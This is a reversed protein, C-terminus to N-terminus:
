RYVAPSLSAEGLPTRLPTEGLRLLEAVIRVCSMSDQCSSFFLAVMEQKEANDTLLYLTLDEAQRRVLVGARVMEEAARGVVEVDRACYQAIRTASGPQDPYDRFFKLVDMKVFSDAVERLFRQLRPDLDILTDQM